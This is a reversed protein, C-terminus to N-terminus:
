SGARDAAQLDEVRGKARDRSARSRNSRRGRGHRADGRDQLELNAVTGEADELDIRAQMAEIRGKLDDPVDSKLAASALTAEAEDLRLQLARLKIDLDIESASSRSKSAEAFEASRRRSRRRSSSRTSASRGARGEEGAQERACPLLDQLGLCGQDAASRDRDGQGRGAGRGGRGDHGPRGEPRPGARDRLTDLRRGRLRSRVALAVFLSRAWSSPSGPRARCVRRLAFPGVRHRDPSRDSRAEESRPPTM